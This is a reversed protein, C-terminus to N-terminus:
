LGEELEERINKLLRLNRRIKKTLGKIEEEQEKITAKYNSVTNSFDSEIEELKKKSEDMYAKLEKKSNAFRVWGGIGIIAIVLSLLGLWIEAEWYLKDIRGNNYSEAIRKEKIDEKLEEYRQEYILRLSDKNSHVKTNFSGIFLLLVCLLRSITNRM